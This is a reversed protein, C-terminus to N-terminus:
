SPPCTIGGLSLLSCETARSVMWHGDIRVAIGTRVGFQPRGDFLLSYDVEAHDADLMRVASVTGSYKMLDAESHQALGQHISSLLADADEVIVRTEDDPHNRLWAVYLDTIQQEDNTSPVFATVTTAPAPPIVPVPQTTAVPLTTTTGELPEVHLTDLVQAALAMRTEEDAATPFVTVVRIMFVRGADRFAIQDYRANACPTGAAPAGRILAGAFTEPRDVVDLMDNATGPVQASDAPFEWVNVASAATTPPTSPTRGTTCEALVSDADPTLDDVSLVPDGIPTTSAPHSKWEPPVSLSVGQDSVVINWGDPAQSGSQRTGIAVQAGDGGDSDLALAGAVLAAVVVAAV